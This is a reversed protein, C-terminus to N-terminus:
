YSLMLSRCNGYDGTECWVVECFGFEGAPVRIEKETSFDRFLEKETQGESEATLFVQYELGEERNSAIRIVKEENKVNYYAGYVMPEAHESKERYSGHFYKIAEEPPMSVIQYFFESFAAAGDANLHGMEQFMNRQQIPFVESCVLNFDYYPINYEQAIKGVQQTYIDYNETSLIQIEYTPSVFLTIQIGKKQCYEIIKRLWYEADETLYMEEPEREMGYLLNPIERTAYCYGKDRYEIRENDSIEESYVYNRYDENGKEEMRGSIWEVDGLHERYRIFPFCADMYYEKTNMHLLADAKNLSFRMNDTNWWGRSIAERSSYDGRVGTSAVYYMELYVQEIKNYREAEKLLYYSNNLTQMGTALNFNNKGNREGLIEPNLDFYVHSSGLYLCDINEEQRYFNHWMIRSWEDEEQYLYNMGKECLFFVTLFIATQVALICGRKFNSIFLSHQIM